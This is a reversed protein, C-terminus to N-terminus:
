SREDNSGVNRTAILNINLGLFNEKIIDGIKVPIRITIKRVAKSAERIMGRPIAKNTRVPVMKLHLGRSFVTSTFFRLPNGIESCAYKEGTSCDNGEVAIVKNGQFEVNLKCGKPCEICIINKIM